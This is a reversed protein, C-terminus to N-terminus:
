ESACEVCVSGGNKEHLYKTSVYEGCTDCALADFKGSYAPAELELHRLTFLKEEPACLIENIMSDLYQKLQQKDEDSSKAATKLDRLVGQDYEEWYHVYARVAKKSLANQLIYVPKGLDSMILNRKGLTCGTLKQIADVACTSTGVQAFVEKMNKIEDGMERMLAKAVRYGMAIDLCYCGHFDVLENFEQQDIM